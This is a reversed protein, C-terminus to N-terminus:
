RQAEEAAPAPHTSAAEEAISFAEDFQWGRAVGYLAIRLHYADMDHIAQELEADKRKSLVYLKEM